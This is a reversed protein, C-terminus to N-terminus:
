LSEAEPAFDPVDVDVTSLVRGWTEPFRLRVAIAVEDRGLRPRKAARIRRDATIVLYVTEVTM